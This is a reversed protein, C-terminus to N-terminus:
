VSCTYDASCIGITSPNIRIIQPCFFHCHLIVSCKTLDLNEETNECYLMPNASPHYALYATACAIFSFCSVKTATTLYWIHREFHDRYSFPQIKHTYNLLTHIFAFHKPQTSENQMTKDCQDKGYQSSLSGIWSLPCRSFQEFFVNSQIVTILNLFPLFAIPAVNIGINKALHLIFGIM